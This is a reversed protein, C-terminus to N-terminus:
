DSSAGATRAALTATPAPRLRRSRRVVSSPELAALTIADHYADLVDATVRPWAFRQAEAAAAESMQARRRPEAWMQGLARALAQPDGPNVLVGHVGDRVVDRYGAIDSAVVPTGAAFAETLVMGFSEGGLSPACLVDAMALERWKTEDDVKGLARVDRRDRMMSSLEADSPGVMVLEIPMQDRLAEFARVLM